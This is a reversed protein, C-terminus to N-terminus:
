VNFSYETKYLVDNTLGFSTRWVHGSNNLISFAYVKIVKFISFCAACKCNLLGRLYSADFLANM